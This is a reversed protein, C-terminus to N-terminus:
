SSIVSDPNTPGAGSDAEAAGGDAEAAAAVPALLLNTIRRCNHRAPKSAPATTVAAPLGLQASAMWFICPAMLISGGSAPTCVDPAMWVSSGLSPSTALPDCWATLAAADVVITCNVSLAWGASDTKIVRM